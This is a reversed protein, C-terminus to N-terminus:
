DQCSHGTRFCACYKKLCHSKSCNCGGEDELVQQRPVAPRLKLVEETETANHCPECKCLSNCLERNAFCECYRPLSPLLRSSYRAGGLRM